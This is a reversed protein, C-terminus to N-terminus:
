ATTLFIRNESDYYWDHVSSDGAVIVTLKEENSLGIIGESIEGLVTFVKRVVCYSTVEFAIVKSRFVDPFSPLAINDEAFVSDQDKIVRYEIFIMGSVDFHYSLLKTAIFM